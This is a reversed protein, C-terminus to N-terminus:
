PIFEEVGESAVPKQAQPQPTEEDVYKGEIIKDFNDPELYWDISLRPRMKERLWTSKAMISISERWNDRAFPRKMFQTILRYQRDTGRIKPLWIRNNWTEIFEQVELQLHKGPILDSM